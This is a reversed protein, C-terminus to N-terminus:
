ELERRWMLKLLIEQNLLFPVEMDKEKQKSTLQFQKQQHSDHKDIHAPHERTTVKAWEIKRRATSHPFLIKIIQMIM